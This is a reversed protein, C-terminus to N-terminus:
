NNNLCYSPIANTGLSNAYVYLYDSLRSAIQTKVDSYSYSQSNADNGLTTSDGYSVTGYKESVVKVWGIPATSYKDSAWFATVAAYNNQKNKDINNYGTTPVTSDWTYGSANASTNKDVLNQVVVGASLAAELNSLGVQAYANCQQIQLSTSRQHGIGQTSGLYNRCFTTFDKGSNALMEKFASTIVPTQGEVGDVTGLTWYNGDNPGFDQIKSGEDSFMYDMLKIAGEINDSSSPICWSNSKLSRNEESYRCLTKGTKDTLHQTTTSFTSETAWYALPPLIARVGTVAGEVNYPEKRSSYKTGLGDVMDNSAGTSAAYDYMILGYTSKDGTKSFYKNLYYTGSSTTDKDWFKEIILGENYLASLYNLGDYTQLTSAADALKGEADFYLMEKKSTMGQIGWIQMFDAINDVRNNAGGRPFLGEVEANEDGTLLGPNAKMVRMLAVLEDANYAASRSTFIESLNNYIKNSGTLGDAFATNLYSVFQDALAKGTCGNVLLENQQKIINTTQRITLTKTESGVLVSVSTTANPYNYNDDVYPTYYAGTLVNTAGGTGNTKNTDYNATSASDLLKEVVSTDMILMREVDQYGDLYPTYYIKGDETIAKKIAPNKDLWAKFNPMSGNEIYSTLDVAEGAQGMKKINATTNYFLDINQASDNDSKYNNTKVKSYTDDDRKTTYASADRIGVQIKRQFTRWTPLLDGQVYEVGGEITNTFSERATVGSEQNYDIYVDLYTDYVEEQEGVCSTTLSVSLGAVAAVGLLAINRKKM